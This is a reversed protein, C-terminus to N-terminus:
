AGRHLTGQFPLAKRMREAATRPIARVDEAVREASVMGQYIKVIEGNADILFSIPFGLDRRRDFLYRYIINYVGSVEPTALLMPFSIKEKAVLSSVAQSDQSEDLNI